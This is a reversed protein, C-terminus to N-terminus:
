KILDAAPVTSFIDHDHIIWFLQKNIILPEGTNGRYLIHQGIKVKPILLIGNGLDRGPGVDMVIGQHPHEDWKSLLKKEAESFLAYEELRAKEIDLLNKPPPADPIKIGSKESQKQLKDKITLRRIIICDSYAVTPFKKKPIM